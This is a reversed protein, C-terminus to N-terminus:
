ERSGIGSESSGKKALAGVAPDYGCSEEIAAALFALVKRQGRAIDYQVVPTGDQFASGHAGPLYYVFREDPSLVCVTTYSGTLWNPGLLELEDRAPRYRFLQNSEHTVGYIAGDRSEHTSARMGPSKPFASNTPAIARGAPDFKWLRDKGNFYVAGDRALAFNRNFGLSGDPAQFVPQRTKLDLGWLANGTGAELNCWWINRERDLLSTATCRKAPLDAFVAARETRPDYCYLQGGPLKESWRYQPQGALNGDNLTASFYIQGDAGEDIKAHVKSWAPHKDGHKDDPPALANIDVIRALVHRKPDWRHIFARADGAADAGHDGIGCYVRGDGAV